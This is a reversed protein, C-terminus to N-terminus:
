ATEYKIENLTITSQNNKLMFTERIHSTPTKSTSDQRGAVFKNLLVISSNVMKGAM